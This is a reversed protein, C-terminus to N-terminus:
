PIDQDSGLIGRGKEMEMCSIIVNRTLEHRVLLSKEVIGDDGWWWNSDSLRKWKVYQNQQRMTRKSRTIHCEIRKSNYVLWKLM